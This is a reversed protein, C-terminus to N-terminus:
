LTKLNNNISQMFHRELQPPAAISSIPSEKIEPFHDLRISFSMLEVYILNKPISLETTNCRYM